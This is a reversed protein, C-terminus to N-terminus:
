ADGLNAIFEDRERSLAAGEGGSTACGAYSQAWQVAQERAHRAGAQDGVQALRLMRLRYLEAVQIYGGLHDVARTITREADHLQDARELALAHQWWHPGEYTPPAVSDSSRAHNSNDACPAAAAGDTTDARDIGGMARPSGTSGFVVSHLMAQALDCAAATRAPTSTIRARLLQGPAPGDVLMHVQDIAQDGDAINRVGLAKIRGLELRLFEPEPYDIRNQAELEDIVQEVGGAPLPLLNFNLQVQNTPEFVLVRRGDDIAHWGFPADMWAMIAGCALTVSRAAADIHQLRPALGIGNNRLIQLTPHEPDFSSADDALAHNALADINPEDSAQTPPHASSPTLEGLAQDAVPASSRGLAPWLRGDGAPILSLPLAVNGQTAPAALPWVPVTPGKPSVLAFSGLIQQWVGLMADALLEPAILSLNILRGGDEAFAYRVRMPGLESDQTAEGLLAPLDGMSGQGQVNPVLANHELLFRAWDSVTGDGYAPRAAASFVIAAQPATVVVLSVLHAANDFNLDDDPLDHPQWDGPLLVTFGLDAARSPVELQRAALGRHPTTPM